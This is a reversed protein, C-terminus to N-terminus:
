KPELCKEKNVKLWKDKNKKSVFVICDKFSSKVERTEIFDFNEYLFFCRGNANWSFSLLELMKVANLFWFFIKQM